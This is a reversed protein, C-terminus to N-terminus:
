ASWRLSDDVLDAFAYTGRLDDREEMLKALASAHRERLSFRQATVRDLEDVTETTTPNEM